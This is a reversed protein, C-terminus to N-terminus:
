WGGSAVVDEEDVLDVAQGAGDFLDEVRRHLVEREVEHDAFPRAGAAHAQRQRAEGEDARRGAVGHEARGQAVAEAGDVAEVEVVRVGDAGDDPAARADEADLDLLRPTWRSRGARGRARRADGVAQQPADAVVGLHHGSPAIM